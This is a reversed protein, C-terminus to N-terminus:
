PDSCIGVLAWGSSTIRGIIGFFFPRDVTVTVKLPPEKLSRGVLNVAIDAGAAETQKENVEVVTQSIINGM